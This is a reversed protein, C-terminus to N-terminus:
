QPKHSQLLLARTDTGANFLLDLISLNAIFGHKPEFVQRYIPPTFERDITNMRKKPHITERLDQYGLDTEKIYRDSLEIKTDINITSLLKHIIELNYDFLFEYKKEFFLILDDIYYEYFPTCRYASEIAKFHIKQWNMAYDIRLDKTYIKLEEGRSVPISLTQPGNASYIVCRNRYTQKPYHEFRELVVKKVSALKSYYQIPGFYTTSLLLM